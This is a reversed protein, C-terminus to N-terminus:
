HFNILAKFELFRTLLYSQIRVPLDAIGLQDKPNLIILLRYDDDLYIFASCIKQPLLLASFKHRYPIADETSPIATM